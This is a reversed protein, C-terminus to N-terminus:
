WTWLPTVEAVVDGEAVPGFYRSDLSRPHAAALFVAGAPLPGCSEYRPLIRGQSDERRQQGLVEGRVRALGGQVCVDDGGLAAVRKLLYGDAPAYGRERLLGRITDPPHVAVLQGLRVDSHRSLWYLGHPLSDTVNVVLHSCLLAGAGISAAAIGGVTLLASLLPHSPKM